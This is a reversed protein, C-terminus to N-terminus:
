LTLSKHKLFFDEHQQMIKSQVKEHPTITQKQRKIERFTENNVSWFSYM